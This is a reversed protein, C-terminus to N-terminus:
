RRWERYPISSGWIHPAVGYKSSYASIASMSLNNHETPGIRLEDALYKGDLLKFETFPTLMSAGARYDIESFREIHKSVVRWEREFKFASDKFSAFVLLYNEKLSEFLQHFRTAQHANSAPVFDGSAHTELTKTIIAGALRAKEEREYVCRVIHAGNLVAIQKLREPSFGICVGKGFPTYSRWQSLDNPEESLSFVFIGQPNKLFDLWSRFQQLVEAQAAPLTTEVREAEGAVFRIADMIETADNLYYASSAWLRKTRVIGLVSEISTYHFLLADPESSILEEVERM